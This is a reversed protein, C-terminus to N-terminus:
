WPLPEHVMNIPENALVATTPEVSEEKADLIDSSLNSEDISAQDLGSAIPAEPENTASDMALEDGPTGSVTAVHVRKEGCGTLSILILTVISLLSLLRVNLQM